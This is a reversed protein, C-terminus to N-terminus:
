ADSDPEPMAVHVIVLDAADQERKARGLVGAKVLRHEEGTVEGDAVFSMLRRDHGAVLWGSGDKLPLVEM